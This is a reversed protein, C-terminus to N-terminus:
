LLEFVDVLGTSGQARVPFREGVAGTEARLLKDNNSVPFPLVEGVDPRGLEAGVPLEDGVFCGDSFLLIPFENDHAVLLEAVPIVDRPRGERRIPLHDLRHIPTSITPSLHLSPPPPFPLLPLTTPIRRSGDFP